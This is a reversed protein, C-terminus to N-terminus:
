SAQKTDEDKNKDKDDFVQANESEFLYNSAQEVFSEERQSEIAQAQAQASLPLPCLRLHLLLLLLTTLDSNSSNM